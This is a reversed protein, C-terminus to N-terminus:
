YFDTLWTLTMTRKSAEKQKKPTEMKKFDLERFGMTAINQFMIPINVEISKVFPGIKINNM